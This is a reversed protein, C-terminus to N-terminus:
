PTLNLDSPYNEVCPRYCISERNTREVVDLAALRDLHAAAEGAGFKAHIGRMEGFLDRAVNWPTSDDVTSLAHFAARARECHHTRVEDVARTVNMTTGHGPEGEDFRANVRDISTLYAALPDNTRTDSGGVNPTYTPLLLDGLM